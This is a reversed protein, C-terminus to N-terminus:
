RWPGGAMWSKTFAAGETQAKAPPGLFRSIQELVASFDSPASTIATRRVFAQWQRSKSDDALFAASFASPYSSIDTGRTEFTRSIASALVKGSFRFQQSLLWIDFFDKMRSNLIGLKVMAEFKEAITSEMSYGALVPPPMEIITPYEITKAGPVVVDGFAVDIQMSTRANGLHGQFLVRVGEYDADEAIREAEVSKPDFSLGDPEVETSCIEGVVAAVSEISNELRGLLDIDRTPRSAPANWVSLMLAGKLVFKEAYISKSLRYLFREMAYYQLLENFPRGTEHSKNLLRQHVSAALDRVQRQKV